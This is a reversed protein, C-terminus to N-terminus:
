NEFSDLDYFGPFDLFSDHALPASRFMIVLHSTTDQIPDQFCSFNFVHSYLIAKTLLPLNFQNMIQSLYVM